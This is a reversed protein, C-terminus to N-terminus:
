FCNKTMSILKNVQPFRAKVEEAFYRLGHALCTFHILNSYFVKLATAARLLYAAADSYLILVKEHAETPWLVKFEESM